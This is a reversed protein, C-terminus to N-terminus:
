AVRELEIDKGDWLGCSPILVAGRPNTWQDFQDIALDLENDLRKADFGLGTLLESLTDTVPRVDETVTTSM